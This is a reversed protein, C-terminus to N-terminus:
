LLILKHSHLCSVVLKMNSGSQNVSILILTSHSIEPRQGNFFDVAHLIYKFVNFNYNKIFQYNYFFGIKYVIICAWVMRNKVNQM